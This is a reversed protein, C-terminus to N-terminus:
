HVNKLNNINLHINVDLADHNDEIKRLRSNQSDIEKAMLEATNKLKKSYDGISALNSAIENEIKDDEQDNEFQYKKATEVNFQSQYKKHLDSSSCNSMLAQEIRKESKYMESSKKKKEENEQIIKQKLQEEQEILKKKKSFPNSYVPVFISRNLKKLENIKIQSLKAQSDALDLNQEINYITESQSGLVGLTNRGVINSDSALKLTRRTLVLSDKKVTKINQKILEIEDDDDMDLTTDGINLDYNHDFFEKNKNSYDNTKELDSKKGEFLVKRLNEENSNIVKNQNSINKSFDSQIDYVDTKKSNKDDYETDDANNKLVNYPNIPKLETKEKQKEKTYDKFAGFKSGSKNQDDKNKKFLNKFGMQFQITLFSKIM